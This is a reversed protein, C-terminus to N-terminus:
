GPAREFILEVGAREAARRMEKDQTAIPLGERMAVVLYSVDYTSLGLARAAGVLRDMDTPEATVIPLSALVRLAAAVTAETLRERRQAVVLINAMEVHWIAPVVAEEERLRDLVGESLPNVEDPFFWAATVSADLVFM